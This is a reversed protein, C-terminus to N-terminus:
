LRRLGAVLASTDMSDARSLRDAQDVILIRVPRGAEFARRFIAELEVVGPRDLDDGSIGEDEVTALGPLGAERAIRAGTTRQAPIGSQTPDSVRCLIVCPEGRPLTTTSM